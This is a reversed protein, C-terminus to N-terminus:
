IFTLAGNKVKKDQYMADLIREPSRLAECDIDQIRTPLGSAALHASIRTADQGHMHGLRVSFRAACAMGVSVGEGHILYRSDFGALVELAHGFTHGLNLLAREGQETEDRAVVSAKSECSIRIAEALSPGRDLVDRYNRELWGFFEPDNILGYKAVEAYGARFERDPLTDLTGIDALVMSPQYFAGILNKGHKSNVATKGGVSSDVQALLTTPIQVFRMGRRLCSAAFGSLDGIVGGGLAVVLDNREFKGNLIEDCIFSFTEISKTKEGPPLVFQSHRVGHRDLSSTLANMHAAAVNTDSVIACASGPSLRSIHQGANAVLGRGILIEYGRDAIEVVVKHIKDADSRPEQSVHDRLSKVIEDIVAEHPGDGSMVTIDATAYVPYREDMLQQMVREPDPAQLLPRNSRKRVRRMLVDHEAKLWISIGNNAIKARTQANMFAGGGTALVRQREKLLRDIVRREGDRFYPEGYQSFIDAISMGAAAEIESDADVFDLGLRAALRRGVSSKGSGMIGVLVISKGALNNVLETEIM